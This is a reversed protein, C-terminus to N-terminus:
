ANGSFTVLNEEKIGLQNLCKSWLLENSVFILEEDAKLTLWSNEHMERNFQDYEWISCGM